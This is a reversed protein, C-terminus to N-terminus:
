HLFYIIPNFYAINGSALVVCKQFLIAYKPNYKTNCIKYGTNCM